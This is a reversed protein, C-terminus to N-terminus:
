LIIQNTTSRQPSILTSNSWWLSNVDNRAQFVIWSGLWFILIPLEVQDRIFKLQVTSAETRWDLNKIMTILECKKSKILTSFLSTCVAPDILPFGLQGYLDRIEYLKKMENFNLFDFNLWITFNSMNLIKLKWERWKIVKM